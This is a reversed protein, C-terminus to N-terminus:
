ITAHSSKKGQELRRICYAFILWFMPFLIILALWFLRSIGPGSKEEKEAQITKVDTPKNRLPIAVSPVSSPPIPDIIEIESVSFTVYGPTGGSAAPRSPTFANTQAAIGQDVQGSPGSLSLGSQNSRSGAFYQSTVGAVTESAQADPASGGPASDAYQGQGDGGSSSPPAAAPSGSASSSGQPSPPTPDPAPTASAPAPRFGSPTGSPKSTPSAGSSQAVVDKGDVAKSLGTINDSMTLGLIHFVAVIVAAVSAVVIVYEVTTLGRQILRRINMM